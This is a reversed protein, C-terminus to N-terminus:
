RRRGRRPNTQVVDREMYDRDMGKVTHFGFSQYFAKLKTKNMPPRSEGYEAQPDVDLDIPLGAADAARVVLSMLARGKGQRRSTRDVGIYALHVSLRDDSARGRISVELKGLFGGQKDGVFTFPGMYIVQEAGALTQLADFFRQAAEKRNLHSASTNPRAHDNFRYLMKPGRKPARGGRYRVKKETNPVSELLVDISRDNPLCDGTVADIFCAPFQRGDSYRAPRWGSLRAANEVDDPKGLVYAHVVRYGMDKGTKPDFSFSELYKRHETPDFEFYADRLYLTEVNSHDLKWGREGTTAHESTYGGTHLHFHTRIDGPKRDPRRFHSRPEPRNIANAEMAAIHEQRRDKTVGHRVEPRPNKRALARPNHRIDPDNPDWTGRNYAASKINRPDFVIYVTTPEEFEGANGPDVVNKIIVGDYGREKAWHGVADTKVRVDGEWPIKDWRRGGADYVFPNEMKVFLRYIGSTSVSDGFPDLQPYVAYTQALRKDDALFFGPHWEDIKSLDFATFGGNKTGHYLVIPKGKTDRLVSKGFWSKFAKSRPM